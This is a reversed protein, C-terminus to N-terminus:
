AEATDHSYVALRKSRSLSRLDDEGVLKNLFLSKLTSSFAEPNKTKFVLQKNSNEMLDFFLPLEYSEFAFSPKADWKIIICDAERALSKVDNRYQTHKAWEERQSFTSLASSFEKLSFEYKVGPRIFSAHDDNLDMVIGMKANPTRFDVKSQVHLEKFKKFFRSGMRDTLKDFDLVRKIQDAFPSECNSTIIIKVPNQNKNLLNERNMIESIISALKTNFGIENVDEIVLFECDSQALMSLSDRAIQDSSFFLTKENKLAERIATTKGTGPAGSIYLGGSEEEKKLEQIWGFIKKQEATWTWSYHSPLDLSRPNVKKHWAQNKRYDDGRVELIRLKGKFDWSDNNTKITEFPHTNTSVLVKRKNREAYTIMARIAFTLQSVRENTDDAFFIDVDKWKDEFMSIIEDIMIADDRNAQNNCLVAIYREKSLLESHFDVALIRKGQKKLKGIVDDACHTKGTGPDGYVILGQYEDRFSDTYFQHM